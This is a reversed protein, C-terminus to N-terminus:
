KLLINLKLNRRTQSFDNKFHSDVFDNEPFFTVCFNYFREGYNNGPLDELYIRDFIEIRNIIDEFRIQNSSKTNKMNTKSYIKRIEFLEVALEFGKLIILTDLNTNFYWDPSESLKSIDSQTLDEVYSIHPNFEMEFEIEEM